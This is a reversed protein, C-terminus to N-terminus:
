LVFGRYTIDLDRPNVTKPGDASPNPYSGAEKLVDIDGGVMEHPERVEIIIECDRSGGSRQWHRRFWQQEEEMWTSM